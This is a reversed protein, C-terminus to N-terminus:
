TSKPILIISDSTQIIINPFFLFMSIFMIDNFNQGLNLVNGRNFALKEVNDAELLYQSCIVCRYGVIIIYVENKM